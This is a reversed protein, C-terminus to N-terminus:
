ESKLNEAPKVYTARLTQSGVTIAGFAILIAVGLLITELNVSVHYALLQLWLNNLFYAAPVAIAVAIVLIWNFSKSLLLVLAGDSSGLVKRISIEKMRTETTYTAMGLLGLCSIFIAIVSIGGMINVLDGFFINYILKIEDEFSKYDVRMAPNIKAWAQEVSQAADQYSGQYKVQLLNFGAPDYFIAMPDMKEMLLQHNYNKVVGIIQKETSDAQYIIEQGLADAASGLNFTEIAKENIVIFNKNAGGDSSAFFRGAILNVELNTLYDEDAHFYNMSTWEKEDLQKKFGNAYTTGAAPLHSAATVSEINSYKLLETKLATASAKNLRVVMRNEMSFGHDAKLFLQLQNFIVIVSLIFILSFSFQAVLLAKRLGLRAFIKTGGINKLVKLPQFGSLVVAPFFGALIGVVVAFAFFIAYVLYNAELDWKFIRAFNLQYLFPKALLLFVLALVLAFLAIMISETLFQVFIQWRAAGNVKRVGIERARTLSRAISLNTFNFCSTLLVVGALGAFFYIFLWPIFPGIPNNILPGPTINMLPQLDFKLKTDDPNTIGAYYKEFITTFAHELTTSQVGDRLLIYVWGGTYNQWDDLSSARKQSKAPDSTKLTSISAFADFAIHTKNATEKLVGTVIFSGLDGVKITEGVPNEQKFLKKAAKSTLVVSYPEILATNKDGHALDYEFLELVEHDAYFGAIPINVDQDFEIWGNGFGRVIRASKEIGSFQTQLEDRVPLPSTAYTTGVPVVGDAAMMNTNVRYVRDRKTNYRDYTMQDAVLMIIGMCITMAISLGFINILSFFRHRNLSRMATKFYNVLM